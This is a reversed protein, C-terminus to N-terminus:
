KVENMMDAIQKKWLKDQEDYDKNDLLNLAITVFRLAGIVDGQRAFMEVALKFTEKTEQADTPKREGSPKFIM